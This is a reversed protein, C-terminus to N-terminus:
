RAVVVKSVIPTGDPAVPQVEKVTFGVGGFVTTAGLPPAADGYTESAFLLTPAEAETLQLREYVKPDGETRIAAGKLVVPTGTVVADTSATHTKTAKTFTCSAGKARLMRLASAHQAAYSM